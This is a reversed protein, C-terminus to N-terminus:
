WETPIPMLMLSDMTAIKSLLKSQYFQEIAEFITSDVMRATVGLPQLLEDLNALYESLPIEMLLELCVQSVVCASTKNKLSLFFKLKIELLRQTFTKFGMELEVVENVTSKPVGLLAKAIQRQYDDLKRVTALDVPIAEMGYLIAPKAINEWIARYM